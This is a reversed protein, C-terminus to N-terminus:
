PPKSKFHYKDRSQSLSQNFYHLVNDVDNGTSCIIAKAGRNIGAKILVSNISADDHIYLFQKQRAIFLIQENKDIVIFAQNDKEFRKAIEQGVRGFGCIIIFDKYRSLEAYTRNERLIHM